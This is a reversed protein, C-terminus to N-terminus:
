KETIPLAALAKFDIVLQDVHWTNVLAHEGEFAIGYKAENKTAFEVLENVDVKRNKAVTEVPNWM